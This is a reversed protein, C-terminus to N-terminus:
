QGCEGVHARMQALPLGTTQESYAVLRRFAAEGTTLKAPLKKEKELVFYKGAVERARTNLIHRVISRGSQEPELLGVIRALMRLVINREKIQRTNVLGPDMTEHSVPTLDNANLFHALLASATYSQLTAKVIGYDPQPLKAYDIERITRAGGVHVARAENGRALLANLRISFLYRSLYGVTFVVDVGASSLTVKPVWANANLVLLDLTDHSRVYQRLFEDVTALDALDVLFLEHPREPGIRRVEALTREGRASDRGLVHLTFGHRALKLAVARGIGDTGGTVLAAKKSTRAM